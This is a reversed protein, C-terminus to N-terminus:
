YFRDSRHLEVWLSEKSVRNMFYFLKAQDHNLHRRAGLAVNYGFKGGASAAQVKKVDHNSELFFMDIAIGEEQFFSPMDQADTCYLITM